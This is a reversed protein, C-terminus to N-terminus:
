QRQHHGAYATGAGGPQSITGASMTSDGWDISATFDSVPSLNSAATFTAVRGSFLSGAVASIANATVSVAVQGTGSLGISQTAYGPSSANLNTDTLVASGTITGDTTPKFDIAANCSAGATLTYATSSSTSTQTCTSANDWGFNAAVSPNYGTIPLPFTLTANGSNAVTVTQPSDTSTSGVATTAFTLTPPTAYNLEKVATNGTDAVFVNGSGDV